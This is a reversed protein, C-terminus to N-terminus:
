EPFDVEKAPQPTQCLGRLRLKEGRLPGTPGHEGRHHGFHGPGRGGETMRDGPGEEILLDFQGSRHAGVVRRAQNIEQGTALDLSFRDPALGQALRARFDASAPAVLVLDAWRALEIHGMAAEHASDFLASRVERGTLAQFTLPAVFERASRTMVVQVDIDARVLLRALEAAKYAAIGGTVGLIIRKPLGM